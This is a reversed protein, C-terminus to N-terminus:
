KESFLFKRLLKHKGRKLQTRIKELSYKEIQGTKHASTHYEVQKTSKHAHQIVAITDLEKGGWPGYGMLGRQGQSEGPLFVPTLAM